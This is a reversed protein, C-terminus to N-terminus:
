TNLGPYEYDIDTPGYTAMIALWWLSLKVTLRNPGRVAWPVVAYEPDEYEWTEPRDDHFTSDTAATM